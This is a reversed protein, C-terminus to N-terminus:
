FLTSYGINTTLPSQQKTNIAKISLGPMLRMSPLKACPQIPEHEAVVPADGGPLRVPDGLREKAVPSVGPEAREAQVVETM